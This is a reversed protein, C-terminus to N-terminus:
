LEVGLYCRYLGWMSESSAYNSCLIIMLTKWVDEGKAVDFAENWNRNLKNTENHMFMDETIKRQIKWIRRFCLTFCLSSFYISGNLSNWWVMKPTKKTNNHVVNRIENQWLNRWKKCYNAMSREFTTMIRRQFSNVKSQLHNRLTCIPKIYSKFLKTKVSSVDKNLFLYKLKNAANVALVKRRKIYTEGTSIM